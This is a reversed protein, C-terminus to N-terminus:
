LGRSNFSITCYFANRIPEPGTLRLFYLSSESGSKSLRTYLCLRNMMSIHEKATFGHSCGALKGVKCNRCIIGIADHDCKRGLKRMRYRIAVTPEGTEFEQIETGLQLTEVSPVPELPVFDENNHQKGRM